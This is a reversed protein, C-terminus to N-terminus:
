HLMIYAYEVYRANAFTAKLLKRQNNEANVGFAILRLDENQSAIVAVPHGAPVILTDGRSLRATVRHYQGGSEEEEQEGTRTNKAKRQFIHALWKLAGLEMRKIEAYDVLVDMDQLQRHEEPSAEFFRGFQNSYLPRQRQLSIPGGSSRGRRSSSMAHQSLAMIKEKSAKVIQGDNDMQQRFFNQLQDRSINLSAELIENSFARLADTSELNFSEIRDKQLVKIIAKGKQSGRLLDLIVMNPNSIHSCDKLTFATLIIGKLNLRRAAEAKEKHTKSKDWEEAKNGGSNNKVNSKANDKGKHAKSEYKADVNASKSSNDLITTTEAVVNTSENRKNEKNCAGGKANINNVSVKNRGRAVSNANNINSKHTELIIWPTEVTAANEKKENNNSKMNDSACERVNNGNDRNKCRASNSASGEEQCHQLCQQFEEQRQREPDRRRPNETSDEDVDRGGDRQCNLLCQVYQDMNGYYM